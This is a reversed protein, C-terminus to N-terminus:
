AAKTLSGTLPQVSALRLGIKQGGSPTLKPEIQTVVKVREGMPLEQAFKLLTAAKEAQDKTLRKAGPDTISVKLMDGSKEDRLDLHHWNNDGKPDTIVETVCGLVLLDSFDATIM